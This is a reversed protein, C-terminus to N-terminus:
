EVQTWGNKLYNKRVAEKAFFPYIFWSIGGTVIAAGLSIAAHSWVEKYAFYFFGFLLCYLFPSNAEEQYNKTPNIFKM